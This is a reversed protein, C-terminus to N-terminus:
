LYVRKKKMHTNTFTPLANMRYEDENINVKKKCRVPPELPTKDFLFTMSGSSSHSLTNCRRKLPKKQIKNWKNTAKEYDLEPQIVRQTKLGYYSSFCKRGLSHSKKKSPLIETTRNNFVEFGGTLNSEQPIIKKSQGSDREIFVPIREPSPNQWRFRSENIGFPFRKQNERICIESLTQQRKSSSTIPQNLSNFFTPSIKSDPFYKPETSIIEIKKRIKQSM